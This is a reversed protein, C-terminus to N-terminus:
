IIMEFTIIGADSDAHATISGGNDRVIKNAIALGLGYGNATQRAEPSRYFREFFRETEASDAHAYSNSIVFRAKDSEQGLSIKIFGGEDCYKSANGILVSLANILESHDVQSYVDEKIDCSLTLNREAILPKFLRASRALQKSVNVREVTRSDEEAPAHAMEVVKNILNSARAGETRIDDIWESKGNEMELIDVNALILALLTRLEHGAASITYENSADM